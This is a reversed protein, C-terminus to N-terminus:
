LVEARTTEAQTMETQTMEARTMETQTRETQTKETQTQQKRTQEKTTKRAHTGLFNCASELATEDIAHGMGPRALWAIDYGKERLASATKLGQQFPVLTDDEGHIMMLPTGKNPASTKMDCPEVFRTAVGVTALWAHGANCAAQLAVMGGQSFGFLAIRRSSVGYHKGIKDLAEAVSGEVAQLGSVIEEYSLLQLPFWARGTALGGALCPEPAQLFVQATEPMTHAFSPALPLLDEATAGYGHFVVLLSSPPSSPPTKTGGYCLADLAAFRKRELTRELTQVANPTLM